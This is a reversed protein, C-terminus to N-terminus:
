EPILMRVIRHNGMDAAWIENKHVLVAAPKNMQGTAFGKIMTGCLTSVNGNQINFLLIRHGYMEAIVIYKGSVISIGHPMAIKYNPFPTTLGEQQNWKRILMTGADAIWINGSTDLTIDMPYKLTGKDLKGDLSGTENRGAVTTTNGDKIMRIRTNGIDAVYLEGAPGWAVAHPADFLAESNKGDKMGKKDASGSLTTVKYHMLGNTGQVTPTLLRITNNVAEAVAIAGDARVAVGHPSNFKASQQDGDQYGKKEPGGAITKVTGDRYIVRIAHNYIDAFVIASDNLPSLRIPKYMRVADGKGDAYGEEGSNNGAVSIIPMNWNTGGDGPKVFFMWAFAFYAYIAAGVLIIFGSIFVVKFTKRRSAMITEKKNHLHIYFNSELVYFINNKITSIRQLNNILQTRYLM